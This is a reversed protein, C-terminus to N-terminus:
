PTIRGERFENRLWKRLSRGDRRLLDTMNQSMNTHSPQYYFNANGGQQRNYENRVASGAASAASTVSGARGRPSVFMQRMPEAIWAPLVTEKKHLMAMQGDHGIEGAGGRASILAGFGLVAALALAAAAPAAVPGIFPIVVTSKYAGAAAVAANTGIEAMGAGAAVGTQTAAGTVAAGTKIAEAGVAAATTAGIITQETTAQAVKAGTQAATNTAVAGTKAAESAVTSGTRAADQAQQVATMGMQRMFWDEFMKAGMDVFKYVMADAAQIFSEHLSQQHTWIGQFTSKMSSSLTSGIDKWKQLTQNAAAMQLQNVDRAYNAQMMGMKALHDAEMRELEENLERKVKVSLNELQLTDRINQAKLQYMRNEHSVQQQYEEDLIAARQIMAAQEGIIGTSEGFSLADNKMSSRLAIMEREADLAAQSLALQQDLASRQGELIEKDLQKQIRAKERLANAVEKSEEGHFAQLLAIKQDQYAMVMALDESQLEKQFDLHAVQDRLAEEQFRRQEEALRERQKVLDGALGSGAAQGVLAEPAEIHMHNTHQESASGTKWPINRTPGGGYPEYIKGNWLVRYGAAQAKAVEEDMQEKYVANSAENGAGPINVDIANIHSSRHAGKTIGGFDLGEDVNYGKDQLSEGMRKIADRRSQFTDKAEDRAAKANERRAETEKRKAETFRENEKRLAAEMALYDEATKKSNRYAEQIKIVQREHKQEEETMGAVTDAMDIMAETAADHTDDVTAKLKKLEGELKIIQYTLTLAGGVGSAGMNLMSERSKRAAAIQAEIGKIRERVEGQAAVMAEATHRKAEATQRNADRQADAYDRIAETLEEVKMKRREEADMVDLTKEEAEQNAQWLYGLLMTAGIIAAGWPGAFFAAVKGATGGMTSLAAATQGGQQALIVLPNIGSAMSATVDQAQYGLQVYMANQRGMSRVNLDMQAKAARQITIWEGTKLKNQMLLQTARRMTENYRQQAAFAPDISSRLENAANAAQREARAMEEAAQAAERSARAAEKEARAKEKAKAAAERTAQRAAERAQRKAEKEAEAAERSARKEADAKERAAAKATAAAEKAAAAAERKAEREAAATERALRKEEAAAARAAAREEQRLRKAEEVALREAQRKAAATERALRAEEAAAARADAVQQAKAAKAEAAARRGAESNREISATEQDLATKAVKMAANYEKRTVIGARLLALNDAKTRNFKEMAAFTPDIATRLRRLAADLDKGGAAVGQLATKARRSGQEVGTPNAGININLDDAM